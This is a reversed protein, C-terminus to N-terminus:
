ASPSRAEAKEPQSLGFLARLSRSLVREGLRAVVEKAVKQIKPERSLKRV